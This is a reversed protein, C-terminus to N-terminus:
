TAGRWTRMGLWNEPEPRVWTIRMWGFPALCRSPANRGRKLLQEPSVSVDADKRRSM